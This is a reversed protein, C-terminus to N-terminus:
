SKIKSVHHMARRQREDDRWTAGCGAGLDLYQCPFHNGASKCLAGHPHLVARKWDKTEEPLMIVLVHSVVHANLENTVNNAKVWPLPLFFGFGHERLHLFSTKEYLDWTRGQKVENRRQLAFSTRGGKWFV